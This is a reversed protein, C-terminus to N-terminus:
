AIKVIIFTIYLVQAYVSFSKLQQKHFIYGLPLTLVPSVLRKKVAHAGLLSKCCHPLPMYAREFFSIRAREGLLLPHQTHSGLILNTDWQVSKQGRGNDEWLFMHPRADSTRRPARRGIKLWLSIRARPPGWEVGAALLMGQSPVCARLTYTALSLSHKDLSFCSVHRFHRASHHSDIQWPGVLTDRHAAAADPTAAADVPSVDGRRRAEGFNDFKHTASKQEAIKIWTKM